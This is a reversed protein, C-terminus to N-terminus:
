TAYTCKSCYCHRTLQIKAAALKEDRTHTYAAYTHRSDLELHSTVIAAGAGLESPRDAPEAAAAWENM